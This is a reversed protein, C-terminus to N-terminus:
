FHNQSLGEVGSSRGLVGARNDIARDSMGEVPADGKRSDMLLPGAAPTDSTLYAVAARLTVSTLQHTQVRGVKPRDFKFGGEKLDFHEVRLDDLVLLEPGLTAGLVTM